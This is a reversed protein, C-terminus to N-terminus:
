LRISSVVEKHISIRVGRHSPLGLNTLHHNLDNLADTRAKYISTHVEVVLNGYELLRRGGGLTVQQIAIIHVSSPDVGAALAIAQVYTAQVEATFAAASMPLIVEVHVVKVMLCRYGAKCVCDGLDSSSAAAFTNAPCGVQTTTNPCFYGPPCAPCDGAAVVGTALSLSGIPCTSLSSGGTCYYGKPCVLCQAQERMGTTLSYTGPVCATKNAGGPCLSGAPCLECQSETQLGSYLSFKGVSCDTPDKSVYTMNRLGGNQVAFVMTSNFTMIDTIIGNNIIRTTKGDFMSYVWVQKAISNSLIIFQGDPTFRCVVYHADALLLTQAGTVKNVRKLGFSGTVFLDDPYLAHLCIWTSGTFAFTKQVLTSIPDLSRVSDPQAIWILPGDEVVCTALSSSYVTDYSLMDMDVRYVYVGQAIYLYNGMTSSAICSYFGVGPADITLPEVLGTTFDIYMLLRYQSMITRGHYEGLHVNITNNAMVTTFTLAYFTMSRPYLWFPCAGCINCVSSNGPSWSGVPCATCVGSGAAALVSSMTGASCLTCDAYGAHSYSGAWCTDCVTRGLASQYYGAACNECQYQGGVATFTGVDCQACTAISTAATAQSFKGAVCETCTEEGRLPKYTGTGCPTCSSVGSRRYGIECTCNSEFSSINPSWMHPPCENKIGTWCWFGEECGTCPANEIGYYGRDCFCSSPMPAGPTSTAHETCAIRSGDVCYFGPECRNCNPAIGYYGDDCICDILEDSNAPSHTHIPCIGVLGNDCYLNEACGTCVSSGIAANTGRPCVEIHNGGTCFYNTECPACPTWGLESNVNGYYGPDCYCDAQRYGGAASNSHGPCRFIHQSACWYNALCTQCGITPSRLTLSPSSIIISGVTEIVFETPPDSSTYEVQTWVLADTLTFEQKMAATTQISLTGVGKAWVSSVYPYTSYIATTPLTYTLKSTSIRMTSSEVPESYEVSHPILVTTTDLLRLQDITQYTWDGLSVVEVSALWVIASLPVLKSTFRLTIHAATPIIFQTSTQIWDSSPVATTSFINEYYTANKSWEVNFEAAYSAGTTVYRFQFAIAVGPTVDFGRQVLGYPRDSASSLTLGLVAVGPFWSTSPALGVGGTGVVVDGLGFWDSSGLRQPTAAPCSLLGCLNLAINTHTGPGVCPECVSAGPLASYGNSCPYRLSSHCFSGQPCITCFEDSDHLMYTGPTCLGQCNGDSLQRSGTPCKCQTISTSAVADTAPILNGWEYTIQVSWYASQSYVNGNMFYSNTGQVYDFPMIFEHTTFPDGLDYAICTAGTFIWGFFEYSNVYTVGTPVANRVSYKTGELFDFTHLGSAATTRTTGFAHITFWANGDLNQGNVDARVIVPTVVCGASTAYFSWKTLNNGQANIFFNRKIYVQNTTNDVVSRAIPASFETASSVQLVEAGASCTICVSTGSAAQYTGLACDTCTNALAHSYTGALCVSRVNGTCKYGFPCPQCQYEADRFFGELCNCQLLSTSGALSTSNGPCNTYATSADASTYTNAPSTICATANEPAYTGALCMVESSLSSCAYGVSCPRCNYTGNMIYSAPCKCSAFTGSMQNSTSFLPCANM